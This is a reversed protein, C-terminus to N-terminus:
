VDSFQHPYTVVGGEGVWIRSGNSCGSMSMLRHWWQKQCPAIRFLSKLGWISKFDQQSAFTLLVHVHRDFRVQFGIDKVGRNCLICNCIYKSYLRLKDINSTRGKTNLNAWYSPMCVAFNFVRLFEDAAEMQLYKRYSM